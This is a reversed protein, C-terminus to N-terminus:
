APDHTTGKRDPALHEGAPTDYYGPGTDDGEPWPDTLALAGEQQGAGGPIRFIPRASVETGPDQQYRM